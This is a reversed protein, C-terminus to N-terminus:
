WATATVAEAIGEAELWREADIAAKCGDAAATVAQRYTHDVLDGAASVEGSTTAAAIQAQHSAFWESIATAGVAPLSDTGARHLRAAPALVPAYVHQPLGARLARNLETDRALLAALADASSGSGRYRSPLQM